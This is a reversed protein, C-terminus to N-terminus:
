IDIIQINTQKKFRDPGDFKNRRRLELVGHIVESRVVCATGKILFGHTVKGKSCGVAMKSGLM